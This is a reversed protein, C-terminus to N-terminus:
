RDEDGRHHTSPGTLAITVQSETVPTEVGVLVVTTGVHQATVDVANDHLHLKKVTPSPDKDHEEIRLGIFDLM